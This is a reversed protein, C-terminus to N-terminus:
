QGKGGGSRGPRFLIYRRRGRVPCPRKTLVVGVLYQGEIGLVSHEPSRQRRFHASIARCQPIIEYRGEFDKGAELNGEAILKDPDIVRCRDVGAVVRKRIDLISLGLGQRRPVAE